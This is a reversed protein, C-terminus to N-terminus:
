RRRLLAVCGVAFLLLAAPEPIFTFEVRQFNLDLNAVGTADAWAELADTFSVKLDNDVGPLQSALDVASIGSYTNPWPLDPSYWLPFMVPTTGLSDTFVRPNPNPPQAAFEELRLTASLDIHSTAGQLLYDGYVRVELGTLAFTPLVHINWAVTDTLYDHGGYYASVGLSTSDFIFTDGTIFPDGFHGYLDHGSDYTMHATSGSPASWYGAQAYPSCIVLASLAACGVVLRRLTSNM